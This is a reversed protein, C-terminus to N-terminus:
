HLFIILTPYVFTLPANVGVNGRRGHQNKHRSLTLVESFDPFLVLLM